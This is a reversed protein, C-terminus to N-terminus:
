RQIYFGYHLYGSADFEKILSTKDTVKLNEVILGNLKM